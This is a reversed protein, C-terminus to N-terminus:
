VFERIKILESACATISGSHLTILSMLRKMGDAMANIRKGVRGIENNDGLDPVRATLDGRALAHVSAEVQDLSVSLTRMVLWGLIVVMAMAVILLGTMGNRLNKIGGVSQDLLQNGFVMRQAVFPQLVEGLAEAEKDFSAMQRNGADPGGDVYDHAMKQGLTYYAAFRTAIEEVSRLSAQDGAQEAHKRFRDLGAKFSRASKEAEDFGDNLGDRGRTASVDSLYQQVQIVDRELDRAVMALAIGEQKLVDTQSSIAQTAVFGWVNIGSLIIIPALFALFLKGKISLGRTKM